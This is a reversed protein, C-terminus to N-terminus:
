WLKRKKRKKKNKNKVINNHNNYHDRFHLFNINNLNNNVIINMQKKKKLLDILTYNLMQYVNYYITNENM